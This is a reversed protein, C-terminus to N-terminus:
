GYSIVRDKFGEFRKQLRYTQFRTMASGVRLDLEMRSGVADVMRMDLRALSRLARQIENPLVTSFKARYVLCRNTNNSFALQRNGKECTQQVEYAIYEGINNFIAFCYIIKNNNLM